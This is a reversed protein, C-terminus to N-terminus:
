ANRIRELLRDYATEAELFTSTDRPLQAYAFKILILAESYKNTPCGECARVFDDVKKM